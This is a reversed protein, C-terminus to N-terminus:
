WMRSMLLSFAFFKVDAMVCPRRDKNKGCCRKEQRCSFSASDWRNPPGYLSSLFMHAWSVEPPGIMVSYFTTHQSPCVSSNHDSRGLCFCSFNSFFIRDWYSMLGHCWTLSGLNATSCHSRTGGRSCSLASRKCCNLGLKDSRLSQPM